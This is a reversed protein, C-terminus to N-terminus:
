LVGSRAPEAHDFDQVDAALAGTQMRDPFFFHHGNFVYRDINGSLTRLGQGM